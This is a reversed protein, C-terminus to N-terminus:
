RAPDDRLAAVLRGFAPHAAARAAEAEVERFAGLVARGQATLRAGGQRGGGPMTEVLRETFCRNAEDVLLWARRYSMGQARAAASISGHRDIADLLDAKGPGMAFGDGCALQLKLKLPGVKM